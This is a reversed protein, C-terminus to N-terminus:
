APGRGRRAVGAALLLGAVSGAFIGLGPAGAAIGATHGAAVCFVILAVCGADELSPRHAIPLLGVLLTLLFALLAAVLGHAVIELM